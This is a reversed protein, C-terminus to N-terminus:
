IRIDDPEETVVIDNACCLCSLVGGIRRIMVNQKAHMHYASILILRHTNSFFNYIYYLWRKLMYMRSADHSVVILSHAICVPADIPVRCDVLSFIIYSIYLYSFSLRCTLMYVLHMSLFFAILSVVILSHVYIYPVTYRYSCSLWCTFMVYSVWRYSSTSAYNAFLDSSYRYSIINCWIIYHSTLYWSPPHYSITLLFFFLYLFHFVQKHVNTYM